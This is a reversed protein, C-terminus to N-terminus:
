LIMLENSESGYAPIMSNKIVWKWGQYRPEEFILFVFWIQLWFCRAANHNGRRSNSRGFELLVEDSAQMMRTLMPLAQRWYGVQQWSFSVDGTHNSQTSQHLPLHFRCTTYFFCKVSSHIIIGSTQYGQIGQIHTWCPEVTNLRLMSSLGFCWIHQAKPIGFKLGLLRPIRARSFLSCSVIRLTLNCPPMHQIWKSNGDVRVMVVWLCVYM